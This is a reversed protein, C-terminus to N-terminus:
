RGKDRPLALMCPTICLRTLQHLMKLRTWASACLIDTRRNCHSSRRDRRPQTICPARRLAERPCRVSARMGRIRRQETKLRRVSEAWAAFLPRLPPSCSSPRLVPSLSLSQAPPVAGPQHVQSSRVFMVWDLRNKLCGGLISEETSSGAVWSCAQMCWRGRESISTSRATFTSECLLCSLCRVTCPSNISPVFLSMHKPTSATISVRAVRRNRALETKRRAKEGAQTFVGGAGFSGCEWRCGVLVNGRRM